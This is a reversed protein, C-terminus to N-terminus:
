QRHESLRAVLLMSKWLWPARGVGHFAVVEFGNRRLLEGLTARSFFKIHGGEWLPTLHSDWKGTVALALNKLYGHYPTTIVLYGGPKLVRAAFQPLLDPSFLHEIVETSVVADFRAPNEALVLAPDDQVGLNYFSLGPNAKRALEYGGRDYEAGAVRYGADHLAGCLVGNGCGVDFVSKVPLTRLVELIAPQLYGCSEPARGSWGYDSTSM